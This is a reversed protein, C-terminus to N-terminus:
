GIVTTYLYGADSAMVKHVEALGVKAYYGGKNGPKPDFWETTVPDGFRLTYGFAVNRISPQSAVRVIGFVDSWVRSYSATQGINATDKRAAGVLIDSLGFYAAISKTAALGPQGSYKFLDRIAEHRALCNWVDLSCYGVLSGPGAGNYCAAVGDQINKIPDGGAVDWRSGAALASTGSFNGSTTLVTAIRKEEKFRLHDNIAAVLDVMENLPADQNALTDVDVYNMLAYSDCVYATSSRNESIESPVSRGTVEDTPGEMRDRKSYTYWKDSLKNVKIIPMLKTGIFEENAYQISVNSLTSDVHVAGPTIAKSVLAANAAKAAAAKVPDSSNIIQKARSVIDNTLM